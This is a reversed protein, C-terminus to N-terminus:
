PKPVLKLEVRMTDHTETDVKAESREFGKPECSVTYVRDHALTAEFTGSADTLIGMGGSESTVMLRANPVPQGNTTVVIELETGRGEIEVYRQGPAVAVRNARLLDPHPAHNTPEDVGVVLDGAPVGTLRFAGSADTRARSVYGGVAGNRWRVRTPPMTLDIVEDGDETSTVAVRCGAMPAGRWLARGELVRGEDLPVDGVDIARGAVAQVIQSAPHLGDQAVVLLYTGSQSLRLRFRARTVDQVERWPGTQYHESVGGRRTPAGAEMPFAGVTVSKPSPQEWTARGTVIAAPQLEIQARVVGPYPASADLPRTFAIPTSLLIYDPHDVRVQAGILGTPKKAMSGVNLVLTRDLPASEPEGPTWSADREFRPRVTVTAPTEADGQWGTFTLELRHLATRPDAPEAEDSTAEDGRRATSPPDRVDDTDAPPRDDARPAILAPAGMPQAPPAAPAPLEEEHSIALHLLHWALALGVLVAVVVVWRSRM